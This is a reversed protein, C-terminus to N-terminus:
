GGPGGGGGATPGSGEPTVMGPGSGGNGRMVTPGFERGVYEDSFGVPQLVSLADMQEVVVLTLADPVTVPGGWTDDVQAVMRPQLTDSESPVVDRVAVAVDHSVVLVAVLAHTEHVPVAAPLPAPQEVSLEDTTDPQEAVAVVDVSTHEEEVPPAWAVPWAAALAGM